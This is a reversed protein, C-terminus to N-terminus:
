NADAADEISLAVHATWPRRGHGNVEWLFILSLGRYVREVGRATRAKGERPFYWLRVPRDLSGSLEVRASPDVVSFHKVGVAEGIRNFHADLLNMKLESGFLLRGGDKAPGRIRYCLSARRGGDAHAVTREVKVLDRQKGSHIRGLALDRVGTELPFFHEM